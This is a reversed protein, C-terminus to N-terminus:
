ARSEPFGFSALGPPKSFPDKRGALTVSAVEWGHLIIEGRKWLIEMIWGGTAGGHESIAERGDNLKFPSLDRGDSPFIFCGEM